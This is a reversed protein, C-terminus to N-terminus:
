KEIVDSPNFKPYTIVLLEVPETSTKTLSHFVNKPIPIMHGETVDYTSEGIKMKGAGKVIYYIEEMKEHKHSKSKRKNAHLFFQYSNSLVGTVKQM